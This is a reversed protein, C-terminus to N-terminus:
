ATNGRTCDVRGPRAYLGFSDNPSASGSPSNRIKNRNLNVVQGPRSSQGLKGVGGWQVLELELALRSEVSAARATPGSVFAHPDACILGSLFEYGAM